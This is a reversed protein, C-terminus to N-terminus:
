NPYNAPWSFVVTNELNFQILGSKRICGQAAFFSDPAQDTPPYLMCVCDVSIYSSSSHTHTNMVLSNLQGTPLVYFIHTPLLM